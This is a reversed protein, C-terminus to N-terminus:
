STSESSARISPISSHALYAFYFMQNEEPAKFSSVWDAAESLSMKVFRGMTFATIIQKASINKWCNLPILTIIIYELIMKWDVPIWNSEFTAM